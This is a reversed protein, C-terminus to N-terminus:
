SARVFAGDDAAHKADFGEHIGWFTKTTVLDRL